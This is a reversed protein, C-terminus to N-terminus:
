KKAIKWLLEFYNKFSESVQKNKIVFISPTDKWVWIYVYDKFISMATPTIYGKPLYKVETYPEEERDKGSTEKMTADFLIRMPIKKNHRERDMKKFFTRLTEFGKEPAKFGITLLGEKSSCEKLIIDFAQTYGHLSEYVFSYEKPKEQKEINRLEKVLPILKEKLEKEIRLLYNPSESKYYKVNNKISYAVLGKKILEQLSAYTRSSSIGLEEMIPGTTTIGLKLLTLYVKSENKTLGLKELIKIDM